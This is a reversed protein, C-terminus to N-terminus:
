KEELTKKVAAIIREESPIMWQELHVSHPCPVDPAGVRVIPAKLSSLREEAVMASIEAGTGGTKPEEHVIVLRGTKDLSRFLAEKDFPILTRPDFVEISIGEAQLKEAAALATHVQLSTALVTVDTGERKIDAVGFPIFYEEEPVEGKLGYLVKHEFYLSPDNGRIATKLLGKADYPTSPVLVYLGQSHMFFAQPSQSHEPGSGGLMGTPLRLTVPINFEDYGGHMWKWKGMKNLIEDFAIEAFDAFMLEAAVKLGGLAMGVSAGVLTNESIPADKVREAGYKKYLGATVGFCGGFVGIDEGFLVVRDDFALEEDLAQNIAQSLTIIM